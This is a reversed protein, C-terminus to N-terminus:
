IKLKKTMFHDILMINKIGNWDLCSKTAERNMM